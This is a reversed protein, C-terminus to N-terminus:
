PASLDSHFSVVSLTIIFCCILSIQCFPLVILVHAFFMLFILLPLLVAVSRDSNILPLVVMDVHFQSHCVDHRFLQFFVSFLKSTCHPYTGLVTHFDRHPLFPHNSTSSLKKLSRCCILSFMIPNHSCLFVQPFSSKSLSM